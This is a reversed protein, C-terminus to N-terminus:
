GLERRLDTLLRPIGHGRGAAYADWVLVALQDLVVAPGLDAVPSAADPASRPALDALADRLLPMREEARGLPLEGWRRALRDLEVRARPDLVDPSSAAPAPPGAGAPDHTDGETM